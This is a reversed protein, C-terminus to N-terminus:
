AFIRDRMGCNILLRRLIFFGKAGGYPGLYRIRIKEVSFDKIKRKDSIDCHSIPVVANNFTGLYREYVEKTISSNYHICDILKLMEIYNSRLMKFDLQNGVTTETNDVVNESLYADRHSKRLKKVIHSDKLSRYLPSQLAIIKKLSLASTNCSGCMSCSDISDCIKNERYMTVKPCIPFFDHATFVMRIKKRKAAVLLSKHLGMLTHIHIIDPMIDDLLKDYVNIDGEDVFKEFDKIGEDYSVPLPNIIEYSRIKINDIVEDPRLRVNVQKFFLKMQGPWLLAVEHGEKGQQVMLDVCFKTLGGSRYPPFGLSYHLIRM